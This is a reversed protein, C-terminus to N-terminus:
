PKAGDIPIRAFRQRAREIGNPDVGFAKCKACLRAALLPATTQPRRERLIRDLDRLSLRTFARDVTCLKAHVRKAVSEPAWIPEAPGSRRWFRMHDRLVTLVARQQATRTELDRLAAHMRVIAEWESPRSLLAAADLAGAIDKHMQLERESPIKRDLDPRGSVPELNRRAHEEWYRLLGEVQEALPTPVSAVAREADRERRRDTPARRKQNSAM